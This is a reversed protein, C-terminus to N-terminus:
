QRPEVRSPAALDGDVALRNGVRILAEVDDARQAYTEGHQDRLDGVLKANAKVLAPALSKLRRLAPLHRGVIPVPDPAVPNLSQSLDLFSDGDLGLAAAVAAGDGGHPGAPPLRRM